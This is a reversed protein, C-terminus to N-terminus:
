SALWVATDPPLKGDSVPDSALLVRAHPPMPVPAAGLNAAFIFGPERTFCITDPAHALWSMLPMGPDETRYGLAPHARRM